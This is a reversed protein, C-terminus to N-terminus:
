NTIENQLNEREQKIKLEAKYGRDKELFYDVSWILFLVMFIFLGYVIPNKNKKFFKIM